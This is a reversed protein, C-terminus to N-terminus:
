VIKMNLFCFGWNHQYCLIFFTLLIESLEPKLARNEEEMSAFQTKEGVPLFSDAGSIMSATTNVQNEVLKM